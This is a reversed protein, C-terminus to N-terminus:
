SKSSQQTPNEVGFGAIIRTRENLLIGYVSIHIDAKIGSLSQKELITDALEVEANIEIWDGLEITSGTLNHQPPGHIIKLGADNCIIMLFLADDAVKDGQHTLYNIKM